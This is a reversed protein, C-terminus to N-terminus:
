ADTPAVTPATWGLAAIEQLSTPVELMSEAVFFGEKEAGRHEIKDLEWNSEYPIHIANGGIQLVPLIDSRVSNGVMVFREADIGYRDLIRRYTADDKESVIEIGAFREALGSRAIKTEQHFLDGKTILLLPHQSALRELTEVVGPLLEIPHEIMAKGADLIEQIVAGPIEGRSVELATEILSLTFGKSGYGFLQLNRKEMRNLQEGLEEPPVWDRLLEAVRDQTLDFIPENHWLTDDADFAIHM